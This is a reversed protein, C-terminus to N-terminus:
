TMASPKACAASGEGSTSRCTRSTTGSSGCAARSTTRSRTSGSGSPPRSPRDSASRRRSGSGTAPTWMSPSRSSRGAPTSRTSSSRWWIWLRTAVGGTWRTRSWRRTSGGCGTEPDHIGVPPSRLADRLEKVHRYRLGARYPRSYLIRLAEIEDRNEGIFRQFDDLKARASEVAAESHGFDLLVDIAGEDIIQYLSQAIEFIARRLGPKTFPKLAVSMREREVADLQEPTPDEDEALGYREVAARHTGQPDISTLLAGTLAALSAGDAEKAIRAAQAEDVRRGLRALRSALSSVLDVHAMGMAAMQLLKKMSVSPKRELPPSVTKERECVGVADVIVFHTKGKADPTVSQLDDPDIVRVGRGKMQEFYGASNVNRMFLLCELPKVDTGTAIM